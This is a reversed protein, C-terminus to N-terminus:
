LEVWEEVFRIVTMNPYDSAYDKHSFALLVSEKFKPQDLLGERCRGHYLNKYGGDVKDVVIFDEPFKEKNHKDFDALRDAAWSDSGAHHLVFDQLQVYLGAAKRAAIFEELVEERFQKEKEHQFNIGVRKKKNHVYIGEGAFNGTLGLEAAKAKIEREIHDNLERTMTQYDKWQAGAEIDEYVYVDSSYHKLHVVINGPNEYVTYESKPHWCKPGEVPVTVKCEFYFDGRFYGNHKQEVEAVRM